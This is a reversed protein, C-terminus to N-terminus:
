KHPEFNLAVSNICFRKGTTETPGDNFLHGLHSGCNKCIVETRNIGLSDDSRLEVAEQAVPDDFSPWGSGSDFKAESSFLTAGCAACTYVGTEKNHLLKGTGPTETAKNRLVEYQEPSLREHWYENTMNRMDSMYTYELRTLPYKLLYDLPSIRTKV